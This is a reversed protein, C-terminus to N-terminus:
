LDEWQAFTAAQGRRVGHADFVEWVIAQMIEFRKGTASIRVGRYDDIFGKAKVMDLLRQREERVVPEATLRSPSSTLTALDMEWLSLAKANGYCLVPDEQTQHSVVVRSSYFLARAQEAPDLDDRGPILPSGTCREFSDLMLQTWALGQPTNWTEDASAFAPVPLLPETKADKKSGFAGGRKHSFPPPQSSKSPFLLPLHRSM